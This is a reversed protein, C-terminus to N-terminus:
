TPSNERGSKMFGFGFTMTGGEIWHSPDFSFIYISTDEEKLWMSSPLWPCPLLGPHLYKVCHYKKSTYTCSGLQM